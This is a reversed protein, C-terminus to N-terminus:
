TVHIFEQTFSLGLGWIELILNWIGFKLGWIGFELNKGQSKRGKPNPAQSKRREMTEVTNKVTRLYLIVDVAFRLLRKCLDNKKEM